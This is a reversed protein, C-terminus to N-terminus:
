PAVARSAIQDLRADIEAAPLWRGRVMVGARKSVHDLNELPNGEILLLDARQGAAVTGFADRAKFHAGVSATGSRLVDFRSMGADTMRKMEHLLSFGPVNFQQPADSGLLITVGGKYLATMIRMRNEIYLAAQDPKYQPSKLRNDLSTTWQEVIRRPMYRLEPLSTRSERTVPGLLTEWVFLTPVVATGAKKTRAVLDQVRAEDVRKNRGDLHEAYQDLHDITQQGMELAHPVGVEAPVHGAFPIGVEKATKAMADYAALPVGPLIKLLDWAQAKQARVLAEAAEPTPASKGTFGPGALYLSPTVADGRAATDKLALQGPAGQMGRVTTVGAAVYLYLVDDIFQASQQPDPIHGHMEALGPLLFKGRGDIRVAGPPAPASASPGIASIRDKTVVVTHDRLVRDADMPLVTVNVFAVPGGPQAASLLLVGLSLALTCGAHPTAARGLAAFLRRVSWPSGRRNRLPL